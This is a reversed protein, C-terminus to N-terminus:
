SHSSRLWWANMTCNSYKYKCVTFYKENRERRTSSDRFKISLSCSQRFYLIFYCIYKITYKIYLGPSIVETLLACRKCSYRSKRALFSPVRDSWRRWLMWSIVSQHWRGDLVFLSCVLRCICHSFRSNMAETSVSRPQLLVYNQAQQTPVYGQLWISVFIM